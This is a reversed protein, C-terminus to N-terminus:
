GECGQFIWLLFCISFFIGLIGGIKNGGQNKSSMEGFSILVLFIGGIVLLFVLLYGGLIAM